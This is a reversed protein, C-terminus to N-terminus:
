NGGSNTSITDPYMLQVLSGILCLKSLNNIEILKEKKEQSVEEQDKGFSVKASQVVRDDSGMKDVVTIFGKDLIKM